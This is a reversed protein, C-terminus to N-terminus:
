SATNACGSSEGKPDITVPRGNWVQQSIEEYTLLAPSAKVLAALLKFTLGPLKLPEGARVVRLQSLSIELDDVLYIESDTM